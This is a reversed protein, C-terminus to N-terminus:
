GNAFAGRTIVFGHRRMTLHHSVVSSPASAPEGIPRAPEIEARPPRALIDLSCASDANSHQTAMIFEL